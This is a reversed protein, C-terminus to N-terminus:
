QRIRNRIQFNNWHSHPMRILIRCLKWFGLSFVELSYVLATRGSESRPKSWCNTFNPIFTLCLRWIFASVLASSDSLDTYIHELHDYFTNRRPLFRCGDSSCTFFQRNNLSAINKGTPDESRRRHRIAGPRVQFCVEGSSMLAWTWVESRWSRLLFFRHTLDWETELKYFSQENGNNIHLTKIREPNHCTSQTQNPM